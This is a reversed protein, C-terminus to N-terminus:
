SRRTYARRGGAEHFSFLPHMWLLALGIVLGTGGTYFAGLLRALLDSLARYEAGDSWSGSFLLERMGLIASAVIAALAAVVMSMVMITLPNKKMMMPRAIHVLYAGLLYGIAHPGIVVMPPHGGAVLGGRLTTIDVLLGIILATWYASLGPAFLAVYVILPIVLSPSASPNGLRMAERVVPELALLVWGVILTVPWRM